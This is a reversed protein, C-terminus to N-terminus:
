INKIQGMRNRTGDSFDSPSSLAQDCVLVYGQSNFKDQILVTDLNNKVVDGYIYLIVHEWPQGMM